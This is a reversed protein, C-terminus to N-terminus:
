GERSGDETFVRGIREATVHMVQMLMERNKPLRVDAETALRELRMLENRAKLFSQLEAEIQKHRKYYLIRFEERIQSKRRSHEFLGRLDWFLEAVSALGEHFPDRLERM